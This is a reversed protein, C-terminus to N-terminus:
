VLQAALFHSPRMVPCQVMTDGDIAGRAWWGQAMNTLSTICLPVLCSGFGAAFLSGPQFFTFCTVAAQGYNLFGAAQQDTISNKTCKLQPTEKNKEKLVWRYQWYMWLLTSIATSRTGNGWFVGTDSCFIPVAAAIRSFNKMGGAKIRRSQVSLRQRSTANQPCARWGPWSCCLLPAPATGATGCTGQGCGQVRQQPATHSPAM